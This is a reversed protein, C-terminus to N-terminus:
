SSSLHPDCLWEKDVLLKAGTLGIPTADRFEIVAILDAKCSLCTSYCREVIGHESATYNGAPEAWTSWLKHNRPYWAMPDGFRYHKNHFHKVDGVGDYSSAAHCQAEIKSDQKCSPCHAEFDIWNYSGM